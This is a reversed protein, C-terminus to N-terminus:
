IKHYNIILIYFHFAQIYSIKNNIVITNKTTTYSFQVIDFNGFIFNSTQATLDM